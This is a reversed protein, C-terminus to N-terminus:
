SIFGDTPLGAAQMQTIAQRLLNEVIVLKDKVANLEEKMAQTEEKREKLDRLLDDHLTSYIEVVSQKTPKRKLLALLVGSVIGLSAVVLDTPISKM